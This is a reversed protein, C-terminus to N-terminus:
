RAALTDRVTTALPRFTLGAPIARANSASMMGYDNGALLAWPIAEEIRRARLFDYDDIRTFTAQADLADRAAEYFAPATLSTAPGVVDYVGGRQAESRHVM